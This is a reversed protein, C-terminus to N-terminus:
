GKAINIRTLTEILPECLASTPPLPDCAIVSSVHMELEPPNAPYILTEIYHQPRVSVLSPPEWMTASSRYMYILNPLFRLTPTEDNLNRCRQVRPHPNVRSLVALM